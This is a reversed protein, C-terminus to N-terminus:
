TRVVTASGFKARAHITGWGRLMEQVITPLVDATDTKSFTLSVSGADLSAIGKGQAQATLDSVTLHRALEAVANKIPAPIVTVPVSYGDINTVSSRPWRLYQADTNKSGVWTIREDLLRTAMKLSREKSDTSAATWTAHYLHDAHYSDADAVTSYSDSTAGGITATIAM